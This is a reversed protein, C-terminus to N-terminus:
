RGGRFANRMAAANRPDIQPPMTGQPQMGVNTFSGQNGYMVPPQQPMYAPAAPAATPSPQKANAAYGGAMDKLLQMYSKDEKKPLTELGEEKRPTKFARKMSNEVPMDDGQMYEPLAQDQPM